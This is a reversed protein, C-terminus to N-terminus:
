QKKEVFNNVVDDRTGKSANSPWSLKFRLTVKYVKYINLYQKLQKLNVKYVKYINLYQKLQKLNVCKYCKNDLISCLFSSVCM